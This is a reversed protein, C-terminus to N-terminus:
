MSGLWSSASPAWTPPSVAARTASYTSPNESRALRVEDATAVAEGHEGLALEPRAEVGPQSIPGCDVEGPGEAVALDDVM